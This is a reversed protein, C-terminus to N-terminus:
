KRETDFSIASLEGDEFWEFKHKGFLSITLQYGNGVEVAKTIVGIVKSSSDGSVKDLVPKNIYTELEGQKQVVTKLQIWNSNM